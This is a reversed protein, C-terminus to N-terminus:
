LGHTASVVGNGVEVLATQGPRDGLVGDVSDTPGGDLRAVVRTQGRPAVDPTCRVEGPALRYSAATQGATEAATLEVTVEYARGADHNRLVLEVCRADPRDRLRGHPPRLGSV